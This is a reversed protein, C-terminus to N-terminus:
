GPVRGTSEEIGGVSELPLWSAFSLCCFITSSNSSLLFIFDTATGALVSTTLFARRGDSVRDSEEPFSLDAGDRRGRNWVGKICISRLFLSLLYDCFSSYGQFRNEGLEALVHLKVHGLLLFLKKVSPVCSSIAALYVMACQDSLFALSCIEAAFSLLFPFLLSRVV